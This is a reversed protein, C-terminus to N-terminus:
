DERDILSAAGAGSALATPVAQQSLDRVASDVKLGSGAGERIMKAVGIDGREAMTNALQEALMSRWYDGALGGGFVSSTDKPLMEEVFSQLFFAEFKQAADAKETQGLARTETRLSGAAQVQHQQVPTLTLNVALTAAGEGVLVWLGWAGPLRRLAWDM